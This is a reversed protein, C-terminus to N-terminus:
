STNLQKRSSLITFALAFGGPNNFSRLLAKERLFDGVKVQQYM